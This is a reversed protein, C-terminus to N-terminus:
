LTAWDGLAPDTWDQHVFAWPIGSYIDIPAAPVMRGGTAAYSTVSRFGGSPVLPSPTSQSITAREIDWTEGDLVAIRLTGSLGSPFTAASRLVASRLDAHNEHDRRRTWTISVSANGDGVSDAWESGIPLYQSTRQSVPFSLEEAIYDGHDLLRFTGSPTIFDIQWLSQIM